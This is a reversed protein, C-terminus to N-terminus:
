GAGARRLVPAVWDFLGFFWRSPILLQFCQKEERQENGRSNRSL